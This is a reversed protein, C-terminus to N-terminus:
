VKCRKLFELHDEFRDIFESYESNRLKKLSKLVEEAEHFLSAKTFSRGDEDTFIAADELIQSHEAILTSEQKKSGRYRAIYSWATTGTAIMALGLLKPTDEAAAVLFAAATAVTAIGIGVKEGTTINRQKMLEELALKYTNEATGAKSNCTSIASCLFIAMKTLDNRIQQNEEEEKQRQKEAFSNDNKKPAPDTPLSPNSRPQPTQTKRQAEQELITQTDRSLSPTKLRGWDDIDDDSPEGSTDYATNGYPNYKPFTTLTTSLLLLLSIKKYNEM